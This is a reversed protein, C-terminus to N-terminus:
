NRRRAVTALSEAEAELKVLSRSRRRSLARGCALEHLLSQRPFAPGSIQRCRLRSRLLSAASADQVKLSAQASLFCDTPPCAFLYRFENEHCFVRMSRAWVLHLHAVAFEFQRVRSIEHCHRM